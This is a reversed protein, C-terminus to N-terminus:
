AIMAAQQRCSRGRVTIGSQRFGPAGRGGRVCAPPGCLEGGSRAVRIGSECVYIETVAAVRRRYFVSESTPFAIDEGDASISIQGRICPPPRGDASKWHQPTLQATESLRNLAGATTSRDPVRDAVDAASGEDRWSGPPEMESLTGQRWLRFVLEARAATWGALLDEGSHFELMGAQGKGATESGGAPGRADASDDCSGSPFYYGMGRDRPLYCATCKWVTVDRADRWSSLRRGVALRGFAEAGGFKSLGALFVPRNDANVFCIFASFSPHCHAITILRNGFGDPPFSWRRLALPLKGPFPFAILRAGAVDNSLRM